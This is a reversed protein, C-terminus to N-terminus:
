PSVGSAGPRASERAGRSRLEPRRLVVLDQHPNGKAGRPILELLDLGRSLTGGVYEKPHFSACLNTGVMDDRRVVLEGRWFQERESATLEDLYADGHTTVLLLGGPALVRRLEDMWPLQLEEPLHTFVSLAYVLDFTDDDYPLPPVLANTTFTGFPLHRRCWEILKGNYDSGHAALELDQWHRIVRGCGCGFDLLSSLSALPRGNREAAEAISDAGRRGSELFWEVNPTGAVAVLLRPPPVSLGDDSRRREPSRWSQLTEYAAYARKLVGLKRLLSIVGAKLRQM